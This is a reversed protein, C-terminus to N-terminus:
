WTMLRPGDENDYEVRWKVCAGPPSTMQLLPPCTRSQWLWTVGLLLTCGPRTVGISRLVLRQLVVTKSTRRWCPYSPSKRRKRCRGPRGKSFLEVVCWQWHCQALTTIRKGSWPCVVWEPAVIQKGIVPPSGWRLHRNSAMVNEDWGPEKESGLNPTIARWKKRDLALEACTQNTAGSSDQHQGDLENKEERQRKQRWSQGWSDGKALQWTEKCPWLIECKMNSDDPSTRHEKHKDKTPCTPQNSQCDM